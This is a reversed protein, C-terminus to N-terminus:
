NAGLDFLITAIENSSSGKSINRFVIFAQEYHYEAESSLGMNFYIDGIYKLEEAIVSSTSTDDQVDQRAFALVQRCRAM